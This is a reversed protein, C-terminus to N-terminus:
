CTGNCRNAVDAISDPAGASSDQQATRGVAEEDSKRVAIEERVIELSTKTASGASKLRFASWDHSADSSASTMEQRVKPLSEEGVKKLEGVTAQLMRKKQAKKLKLRCLVWCKRSRRRFELPMTKM